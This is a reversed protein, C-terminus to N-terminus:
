TLNKYIKAAEYLPAAANPDIKICKEFLVLADEYNELHKQKLAEFFSEQFDDTVDELNDVNVDQLPSPEQAEALPSFLLAILLIIFAKM